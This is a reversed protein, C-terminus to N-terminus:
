PGSAQKLLLLAPHEWPEFSSKRAVNFFKTGQMNMAYFRSDVNEIGCFRTTLFIALKNILPISIQIQIPLNELNVAM